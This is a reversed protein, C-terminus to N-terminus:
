ISDLTCSHCDVSRSRLDKHICSSALALLHLGDWVMDICRYIYNVVGLLQGHLSVASATVGCAEIREIWVSM